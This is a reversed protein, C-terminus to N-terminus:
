HKKTSIRQTIVCTYIAEQRFDTKFRIAFFNIRQHEIISTLRVFTTELCARSKKFSIKSVTLSRIKDQM